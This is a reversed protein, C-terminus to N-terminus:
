RWISEEYLADPACIPAVENLGLAHWSYALADCMDDHAGMPFSLLESEFEPPLGRVHYVQGLEYRAELPAFRSVKDSIPKIGRVNLLSDASLQQILAKQYNVEEIAVVFPNWKAALQEIFVIQENFSGRMRQVDLVHLNGQIDRGLVVVATYDATAKESIALDVGLAIDLHQLPAHDEYKLWARQVRTAGAAIFKCEYEQAVWASGRERREEEIFAPDIRPCQQWPVEIKEWGASKAWTDYFFGQEGRPTSMLVLRGKSVALMPRVAGYLEDPIAAAEDLILLTVASIGRITKESGPLALVRSGNAFRVSLKTDSDLKVNKDVMDLFEAFKLMLEQSQRLSPSDLVITSRPKHIAEWLALIAATSSKGSQRSCNLCLRPHTSRLFNAQWPDPTTNLYYRAFVVPDKAAELRLVDEAAKIAELKTSFRSSNKSGQM